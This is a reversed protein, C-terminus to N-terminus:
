KIAVFEIWVKGDDGPCEITPAKTYPNNKFASVIQENTLKKLWYINNDGNEPHGFVVNKYGKSAISQKVESLKDFRGCVKSVLIGDIKLLPAAFDHLKESADHTCYEDFIISFKKKSLYDYTKPNKLDALLNPRMWPDIDVTYWGSNDQNYSFSPFKERFKKVDPTGSCLLLKEGDYKEIDQNAVIKTVVYDSQREAIEKEVKLSYFFYTFVFALTFIIAFISVQRIYAKM